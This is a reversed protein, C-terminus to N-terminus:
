QRRGSDGGAANKFGTHPDGDLDFGEARDMQVPALQKTDPVLWPKEYVNEGNPGRVGGYRTWQPKEPDLIKDVEEWTRYSTKLATRKDVPPNAGKPCDRGPAAEGGDEGPFYWAPEIWEAVYARRWPDAHAALTAFSATAIALVVSRKLM